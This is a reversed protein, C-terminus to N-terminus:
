SVVFQQTVKAGKCLTPFKSLSTWLDGNYRVANRWSGSNAKSKATSESGGYSHCM